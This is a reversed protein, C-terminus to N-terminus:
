PREEDRAAFLHEALDLLQPFANVVEEPVIRVPPPLRFLRNRYAGLLM